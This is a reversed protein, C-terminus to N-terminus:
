KVTRFRAIIIILYYFQKLVDLVNIKYTVHPLLKKAQMRSSTSYYRFYFAKRGMMLSIGAKFLVSSGDNYNSTLLNLSLIRDRMQKEVKM